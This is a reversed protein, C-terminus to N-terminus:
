SLRSKQYVVKTKFLFDHLTRRDQRKNFIYFAIVFYVGLTLFGLLWKTFERLHARLLSIPQDDLTLIIIDASRKGLSVGKKIFMPLLTVMYFSGIVVLVKILPHWLQFIIVLIALFITIMEVSFAQIRDNFQAPLYHHIPM